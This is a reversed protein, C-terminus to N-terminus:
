VPLEDPAPLAAAPLVLCRGGSDSFLLHRAFDAKTRQVMPTGAPGALMTGFSLLPSGGSASRRRGTLAVPRIRGTWRGSGLSRGPLRCWDTDLFGSLPLAWPLVIRPWLRCAASPQYPRSLDWFDFGACGSRGCDRLHNCVPKIRGIGRNFLRPPAHAPSRCTPRPPMFSQAAFQGAPCVSRLALDWSRQQGRFFGALWTARVQRPRSQFAPRACLFPEPSHGSRRAALLHFIVRPRHVRWDALTVIPQDPSFGCSRFSAVIRPAPSVGASGRAEM